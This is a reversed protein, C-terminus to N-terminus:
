TWPDLAEEEIMQDLFAVQAPVRLAAIAVCERQQHGIGGGLLVLRHIPEIDEVQRALHQAAEEIMEFLASSAGDAGAVLTESCNVRHCSEDGFAARFMDSPAALYSGNGELSERPVFEGIHVLGLHIGDEGSGVAAGPLAPAIMREQQEKVVGASADGFGRRQQDAIQVQTGVLEAVHLESALTALYAPAREPRRGDVRQEGEHAVTRGVLRDEEVPEAIRDCTM